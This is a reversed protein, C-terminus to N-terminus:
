FNHHPIFFILINFHFVKQLTAKELTRFTRELYLENFDVDLKNIEAIIGSVLTDKLETILKENHLNAKKQFLEISYFKHFQSHFIDM